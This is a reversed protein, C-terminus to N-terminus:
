GASQRALLEDVIAAFSGRMEARETAWWAQVDPRRLVASMANVSALWHEESLMGMQYQFHCNEWYTFLPTLGTSMLIQDAANLPEGTMAKNYANYLVESTLSIAHVDILMAARQQYVDAIAIERSQRLELGVFMLSAILGAFGLIQLWNSVTENNM